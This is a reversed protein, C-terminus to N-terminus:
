NPSERIPTKERYSLLHSRVQDIIPAPANAAELLRLSERSVAEARKFNGEEALAASFTDLYAAQPEGQEQALMEEMLAVARPGDRLTEDPTTALAWALDNRNANDTPCAQIGEALLGVYAEMQGQNQLLSAMESRSKYECADLRLLAQYTKLAEAERELKRQARAILLLIQTSEPAQVRIPELLALAEQAKERRLYGQAIAVGEASAVLSNPDAGYLDLPSEGAEIEMRPAHAVYGLAILEAAIQADIETQAPDVGTPNAILLTELQGRMAAVREPHQDALNVLENPDEKVNYLEPNTKHIYKWDGKSLYRLTPLGFTAAFRTAEGYAHRTDSDETEEILPLLSRGDIEEPASIDLLELVTPLIDVTRALASIRKGGEVRDPAWLILPVRMTSNYVFYSHTPEGHENLGEGHDATLVVITDEDLDLEKLGQLLRGIQQDVYAVEALYPNDRFRNRFSRPPYYPNHPDFYHLWLFFPDNGYRKMFEIARNTIDSGDRTKPKESDHQTPVQKLEVNRSLAGRQHTFGQTIRTEKRLVPAAIEAATRYGSEKLIEALTLEADPLIFGANARVGHHHPWQGTLISAHSPLTEPNTTMAYEFTVGEKALQDMHPSPKQLQGYTGLADARLTDLTILILNPKRPPSTAPIPDPERATRLSEDNPLPPQENECSSATLMATLSLFLATTRRM